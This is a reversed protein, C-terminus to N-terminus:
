GRLFVTLVALLVVILMAIMGIRKLESGLYGYELASEASAGRRSRRVARATAPRSTSLAPGPATEPAPLDAAEEEVEAAREAVDAETPGPDFDQGQGPDKGRRKKRRLQAQRSAARRSKSPM